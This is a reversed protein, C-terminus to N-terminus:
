WSRALVQYCAAAEVGELGEKEGLLGEMLNLVSNVHGEAEGFLLQDASIRAMQLLLRAMEATESSGGSLRKQLDM